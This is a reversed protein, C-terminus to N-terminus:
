QSSRLITWSEPTRLCTEPSGVTYRKCVDPSNRNGFSKANSLLICFKANAKMSGVLKLTAGIDSASVSIYGRNVPRLSAFGPSLVHIDMPPQDIFSGSCGVALVKELRAPDFSACALNKEEKNFKM